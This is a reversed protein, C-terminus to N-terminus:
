EAPVPLIVAVTGAPAVVPATLTVDAPPVATLPVKVTVGDAGVTTNDIWWDAHAVGASMATAAVAVAASLFKKRM